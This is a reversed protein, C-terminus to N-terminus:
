YRVRVWRYYRHGNVYYVQRVLRTRNYSRDRSNDWGRHRGRNWQRNRNRRGIQVRIQPSYEYVTVANNKESAAAYNEAPLFVFASALMLMGIIIKNRM